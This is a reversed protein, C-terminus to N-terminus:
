LTTPPIRYYFIAAAKRSKSARSAHYIGQHCLCANYSPAGQNKKIMIFQETQYRGIIYSFANLM